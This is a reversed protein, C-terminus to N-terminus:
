GGSKRDSATTRVSRSQGQCSRGTPTTAIGESVRGSSTAEVACVIARRPRSGSSPVSPRSGCTCRTSGPPLLAKRRAATHPRKLTPGSRVAANRPTSPGTSSTSSTISLRHVIVTAARSSRRAPADATSGKASAETPQRRAGSTNHHPGHARILRAAPTPDHASEEEDPGPSEGQGDDDAEDGVQRERQGPTQRHQEEGQRQDPGRAAVVLWGDLDGAGDSAAPGDHVARRALHRAVADAAISLRVGDVADVRAGRPRRRGVGEHAADAPGPTRREDRAGPVGR